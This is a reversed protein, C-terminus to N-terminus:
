ELFRRRDCCRVEENLTVTSHVTSYKLKGALTDRQHIGFSEGSMSLFPFPANQNTLKPPFLVNDPKKPRRIPLCM